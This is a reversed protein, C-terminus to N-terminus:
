PAPLEPQRYSVLVTGLRANLGMVPIVLLKGGDADPRVAVQEASLADAPYLASAESSLFKRDSSVLVKGDRGALVVRSIRELRVLEAFYQDVQDLNNRVMEGRVAWALATGFRRHAEDSRADALQRVQTLLATREAAAERAMTQRENGLRAEARNAAARQWAYTVVLLVALVLSVWLPLRTERLRALLIATGTQAAAPETQDTM